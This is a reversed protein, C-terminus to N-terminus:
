GSKEQAGAPSALSSGAVLGSICLGALIKKL